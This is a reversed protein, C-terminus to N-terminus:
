KHKRVHVRAKDRTDYRKGCANCTFLGHEDQVMMERFRISIKDTKHIVRHRLLASTTEFKMQCIYCTRFRVGKHIEMHRRIQSKRKWSKGCIDCTFLEPERADATSDGESLRVHRRFHTLAKTRDTFNKGCITCNFVGDESHIVQQTFKVAIPDTRHIIQHKNLEARSKFKEHCTHCTFRDEGKQHIPKHYHLSAITPFSKDCLDCIFKRQKKAKHQAIHNNLLGQMKFVRGCEPCSVPTHRKPPKGRPVPSSKGEVPEDQISESSGATKSEKWIRKHSEIHRLMSAKFGFERSCYKCRYWGLKIAKHWRIHRKLEFYKQFTRGCETCKIAGDETIEAIPELPEASAEGDSEPQDRVEVGEELIVEVTVEEDSEASVKTSRPGRRVVLPLEMELAPQDLNAGSAGTFEWIKKHSEIHRMLSGKFSFTKNCYHCRHLGLNIANHWKIHRNLEFQKNFTRDCDACKITRVKAIKEEAGNSTGNDLEPGDKVAAEDELIVEEKTVTEYCFTLFEAEIEPQEDPPEDKVVPYLIEIESQEDPPEEKVVTPLMELLQVSDSPMEDELIVEEKLVTEYCLSPSEAKIQPQVEPTEVKVVTSYFEAPSPKSAM